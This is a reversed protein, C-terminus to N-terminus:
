GQDPLLTLSQTNNEGRRREELAVGRGGSSGLQRTGHNFFIREKDPQFLWCGGHLHKKIAPHLVLQM